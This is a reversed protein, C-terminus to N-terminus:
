LFLFAKSINYHLQLDMLKLVKGSPSDQNNVVTETQTIFSFDLTVLSLVLILM